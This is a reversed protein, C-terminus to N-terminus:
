LVFLSGRDTASPRGPETVREIYCEMAARIVNLEYNSIRRCHDLIADRSIQDDHNVHSWKPCSLMLDFAQKVENDIFMCPDENRVDRVPQVTTSGQEVETPKKTVILYYLGFGVGAILCAGLFAGKNAIM